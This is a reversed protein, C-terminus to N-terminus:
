CSRLLVFFENYKFVRGFIKPFPKSKAFEVRFGNKQGFRKISEFDVYDIHTPDSRYGYEQPCIILLRGHPKLYKKFENLLNDKESDTLHELLHAMVLSDFSEPIALKSNHFDSNTFANLGGEKAISISSPNHDVGCSDTLVKLIRGTGCGIELTKGLSLKIIPRVLIRQVRFIIKWRKNSLRQLRETYWPEATNFNEM